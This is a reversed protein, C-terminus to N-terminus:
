SDLFADMQDLFPGFAEHLRNYTFFHPKIEAVDESDVDLAIQGSLFERALEISLAIVRFENPIFDTSRNVLKNMASLCLNENIRQQIETDAGFAPVLPLAAIIASVDDGSFCYSFKMPKKM